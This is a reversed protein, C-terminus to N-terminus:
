PARAIRFGTRNFRDSQGRSDRFTPLSAGSDCWSAGRYARFTGIQPGRPNSQASEMYGTFWDNCWECVNGSMDYLGLENAKKTGVPHTGGDSNADYWAVEVANNSGAFLTGRGKKGGNAAYEWEAETPLRYGNASWDVAVTGDDNIQYFDALGESESLWNCYAAADEWSVCVVPNQDAQPFYPNKWSADKRREPVRGVWFVEAGGGGEARTVYGIEEVFRRFEGVTVEYKGILFSSVTVSHAPQESPDRTGTQDGMIFTGGEVLVMSESAKPREVYTFTVATVANKAVDVTSTETKGGAYRMEVSVKGTEVDDIRAAAGPTLEGMAEGNLYLTGKSKIAVSVSGYAREVTLTPKKVTGQGSSPASALYASGFYQNYV